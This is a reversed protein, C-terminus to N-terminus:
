LRRFIVYHVKQFFMSNLKRKHLDKNNFCPKFMKRKAEFYRVLRKDGTQVYEIDKGYLPYLKM